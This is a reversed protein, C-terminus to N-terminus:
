NVSEVFGRDHYGELEFDDTSDVNGTICTFCMPSGLLATGVIWIPAGCQCKALRNKLDEADSLKKIWEVVAIQPNEKHLKKALDVKPIPTFM